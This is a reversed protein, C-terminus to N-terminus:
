RSHEASLRQLFDPLRAVCREILLDLPLFPQLLRVSIMFQGNILRNM